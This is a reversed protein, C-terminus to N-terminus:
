TPFSKARRIPTFIKFTGDKSNCISQSSLPRGNKRFKELLKSKLMDCLPSKVTQTADINFPRQPVSTM